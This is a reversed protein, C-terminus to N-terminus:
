SSLLIQRLQDISERTTPYRAFDQQIKRYSHMVTTHDRGGLAHGIREYSLESLERALYVVASRAFVAAQRRSGSKLVKQPVGYHKAVAAVIQRLLPRRVDRAALYQQTWQVDGVAPRPRTALLEFVAGILEHTTGTVADALRHIAAPSLPRGLAATVQELLKQRAATGPPALELVLGSSLRSQLEASLNALAPVPRLSAVVLTGGAAEIADFTYRLEEQVYDRSPLKDLDDIALLARGRLQRRFEVIADDNLADAILRRFDAATIYQASDAGHRSQWHEVLGRAMHTKGTGNSGYLAIVPPAVLPTAAAPLSDEPVTSEPAAHDLLRDFTAAVLRNEPGAVFSPLTVDDAVDQSRVRSSTFTRGPLPIELVQDVM